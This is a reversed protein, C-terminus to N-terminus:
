APGHGDHRCTQPAFDAEKTFDLTKPAYKQLNRVFEAYDPRNVPVLVQQKQELLRDRATFCLADARAHGSPVGRLLCVDELESIDFYIVTRSCFIEIAAGADDEPPLVRITDAPILTYRNM